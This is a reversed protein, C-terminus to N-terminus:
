WLVRLSALVLVIRQCLALPAPRVIDGLQTLPEINIPGGTEKHESLMSILMYIAFCFTTFYIITSFRQSRPTVSLYQWVRIEFGTDYEVLEFM